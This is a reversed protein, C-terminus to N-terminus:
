KLKPFTNVYQAFVGGSSVDKKCRTVSYDWFEFLGVLDCGMEVFECVGDVVCTAVVCCEEDLAHVAAKTCHQIM